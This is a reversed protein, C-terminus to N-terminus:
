PRRAGLGVKVVAQSGKVNHVTSEENLALWGQALAYDIATDRMEGSVKGARTICAKTCEHAADKSHREIGRYIREAILKIAYEDTAAQITAAEEGRATLRQARKVRMHNQVSLRTEDSLQLIDGALRWDEDDVHNRGEVLALVGAVRLRQHNRHSDHDQDGGAQRDIHDRWLEDNITKSIPIITPGGLTDVSNVNERAFKTDLKIEESTLKIFEGNEITGALAPDTAHFWLWRQLDGVDSGAFVDGALSPQIGAAISLRYTGKEVPLRADQNRYDMGLRDGSWATRLEAGITAGARQKQSMLAAYEDIWAYRRWAYRSAFTIKEGDDDKSTKRETFAAAIGEGSGIRLEGATWTYANAITGNAITKGTGSAGVLLVFLNLQTGSGGIPTEIKIDPSIEASIRALLAGLLATRSVGRALGTDNCWRLWAREDWLTTTPTHIRTPETCCRQLIPDIPTIKPRCDDIARRYESSAESVGGTRREAILPIFIHGLRTLAQQAGQHGSAEAQLIAYVGRLMRDHKSDYTEIDRITNDTLRQVYRCPESMASNLTTPEVKREPVIWLPRKFPDAWPAGDKTLRAAQSDTLEPLEDISPLSDIFVGEPVYLCQYAYGNPHMAGPALLYRHKHRIIEVGQYAGWLEDEDLGEPLRYLRIGSIGDYENAFRASVVCTAPFPEGQNILEWTTKGDKSDYADVDVGVVGRPLRAGLNTRWPENLVTEFWDAYSPLPNDGTSNKPPPQKQNAPIALAGYGYSDLTVARAMLAGDVDQDLVNTM